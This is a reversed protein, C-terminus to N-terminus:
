NIYKKIDLAMTCSQALKINNSNYKGKLRGFIDWQLTNSLIKNLHSLSASLVTMKRLKLMTQDQEQHCLSNFIFKQSLSVGCMARGRGGKKIYLIM